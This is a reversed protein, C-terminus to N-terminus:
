VKVPNERRSRAALVWLRRSREYTRVEWGEYYERLEPNACEIKSRLSQFLFPPIEQYQQEHLMYPTKFRSGTDSARVTNIPVSEACQQGKFQVARKNIVLM